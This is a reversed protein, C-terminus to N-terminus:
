LNNTKELIDLFIKEPIIEIKSGKQILELVKRIKSSIFGTSAKFNKFDSDSIILINIKKSIGKMQIGGLATIKEFATSREMSYFEGTILVNKDQFFQHPNEITITESTSRIEEPIEIPDLSKTPKKYPEYGYISRYYEREEKREQRELSEKERELLSDLYIRYKHFDNIDALDLIEFQKLALKATVLADHGARHHDFLEINNLQCLTKLKYNELDNWIRKAIKMTCLYQWDPISINYHRLLARFVAMDYSANHAVLKRDNILNKIEPWLEDFKPKDLVDEEKIRHIRVNVPNFNLSPPQILWSVSEIIKGSEVLTLGIECASNLDTNATEFDLSVFDMM